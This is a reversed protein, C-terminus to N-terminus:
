ALLKKMFLNTIQKRLEAVIAAHEPVEIVNYFEHPDNEMDFLEYFERDMKDIHM